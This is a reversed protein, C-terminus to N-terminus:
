QVFLAMPFWDGACFHNKDYASLKMPRFDNEYQEFTRLISYPSVPAGDDMHECIFVYDSVGKMIVVSKRYEAEDLIHLLTITEFVLDFRGLKSKDLDSIKSQVYQINNMGATHQRAREIMEPTMDVAVVEKAHKALGKTFRGIGCGLELIRKGDLSGYNADLFNMVNRVMKASSTNNEEQSHRSSMVATVGERAARKRWELRVEGISM